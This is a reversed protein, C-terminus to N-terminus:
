GPAPAALAIRSRTGAMLPVYVVVAIVVGAFAQPFATALFGPLTPLVVVAFAVWAAPNWGGRYAYCREPDYLQEADIRTRHVIWYDAITSGPLQDLLQDLLPVLLAGYRAFCCAAM